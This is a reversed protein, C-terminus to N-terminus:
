GQTARLQHAIQAAHISDHAVIHLVHSAITIAGQAAPLGGRRWQEPALAALFDVRAARLADLLDNAINYM